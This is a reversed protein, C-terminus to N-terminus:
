KGQLIEDVLHTLDTARYPKEIIASAKLGDPNEPFMSAYGTVLIVKPPHPHDKLKELLELGNGKPMAIDSLILDISHKNIVELALEGSSAEFFTFNEEGLTRMIAQRVDEIDDVVLIIKKGM